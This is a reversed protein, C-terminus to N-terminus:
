AQYQVMNFNNGYSARGNYIAIIESTVPLRGGINKCAQRAPYASFDITNDAVLVYLKPYSVDLGVVGQPSSVAGPNPGWTYKTNLDSKYVWKNELVTGILGAIWDNPSSNNTIRYKAGNTNSNILIYSSYPSTSSYTFTNGTSSKICYKNDTAPTSDYPCKNVDLDVPYASHEVYYLALEKKANSLDSQLSTNVAKQSIGTFSVITIAALIGIVVIVVLLEVITFGNSYIISKPNITNFPSLSRKNM